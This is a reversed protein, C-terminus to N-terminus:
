EADQREPHVARRSRRRGRKPGKRKGDLPELAIPVRLGELWVVFQEEDAVAAMGQWVRVPANRARCLDRLRNESGPGGHEASVKALAKWGVLKRRPRAEAVVVVPPGVVFAYWPLPSCGLVPVRVTVFHQPASV